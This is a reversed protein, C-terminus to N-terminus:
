LGFVTIEATVKVVSFHREIPFYLLTYPIDSAVNKSLSFPLGGISSLDRGLGTNAYASSVLSAVYM